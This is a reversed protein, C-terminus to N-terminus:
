KGFFKKVGPLFVTWFLTTIVIGYVVGRGYFYHPDIQTWDTFM